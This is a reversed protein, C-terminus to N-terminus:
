RVFDAVGYFYKIRHSNHSRIHINEVVIFVDNHPRRPKIPSGGAARAMRSRIMNLSKKCPIKERYVPIIIMKMFNNFFPTMCM